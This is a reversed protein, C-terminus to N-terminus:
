VPQFNWNLMENGDEDKCFSEVALTVDMKNKIDELKAVKLIGLVRIGEPLTVLGVAYPIYPEPHIFPPPPPYYQVTYSDLKGKRSLLVEKVQTNECGPRHMNVSKPFSYTGCSDCKGAILNAARGTGTFLGEVIPYQRKESM